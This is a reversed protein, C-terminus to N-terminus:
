DQPKLFVRKTNTEAVNQNIDDKEIAARDRKKAFKKKMSGVLSEYRFCLFCYFVHAWCLLKIYEDYVESIRTWNSLCMMASQLSRCTIDAPVVIM